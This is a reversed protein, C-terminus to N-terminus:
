KVAKLTMYVKLEPRCLWDCSWGAARAILLFSARLLCFSKLGGDVAPFQSMKVIVQKQHHRLLKM